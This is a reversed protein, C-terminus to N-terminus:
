YRKKQHKWCEGCTRCVYKGFRKDYMIEKSNCHPCDQKYPKRDSRKLQFRKNLALTGEQKIYRPVGREPPTLTELM